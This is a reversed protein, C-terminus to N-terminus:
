RRRDRDSLDELFAFYESASSWYPSPLLDVEVKKWLTFQLTYPTINDKQYERRYTSRLFEDLKRLTDDIGNRIVERPRIDLYSM